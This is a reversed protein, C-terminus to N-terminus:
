ATKDFDSESNSFLTRKLWIYGYAAYRIGHMHSFISAVNRNLQTSHWITRIMQRIDLIPANRGFDPPFPTNNTPKPIYRMVVNEPM